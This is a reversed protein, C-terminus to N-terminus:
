QVMVKRTETNNGFVLRLLYNGPPCDAVNIITGKQLEPAEYLQSHKVTGAANVLEVVYMGCPAHSFTVYLQDSAPNPWVTLEEKTREFEEVNVTITTQADYGDPNNELHGVNDTAISYFKYSSGVEGEFIDTTETTNIKWPVLATDNVMVYLTYSRIGSGNDSGTWDVPFRSDITEELPYVQSQPAELDLTNLYENTIIPANGDFIISAKNRIEEDTGLEKKLGVSFTVFGEGEPSSGNPPLFGLFPDEELDMTEPNLSLFEWKVIGTLTDLKGSVRTILELNPRMDIDLSFEKQRNGPPFYISDGWGFASFGFESLDFVSQDLTDTIFVDHAPATAESKNEFLITYPMMNQRPIFNAEGFGSPGIIENPDVAWVSKLDKWQSKPNEFKKWCEYMNYSHSYASMVLSIIQSALEFAKLYPIQEGCSWITATVDWALNKMNTKSPIRLGTSAPASFTERNGYIAAIVSYICNTPLQKQLADLIQTSLDITAAAFVDGFCTESLGEWFSPIGEGYLLKSSKETEGPTAEYTWVSIKFDEPSKIKVILSSSINQPLHDIMLAYIRANGAGEHTKGPTYIATNGNFFGESIFYLPVSDKIAEFRPDSFTDDLIFNANIFETELGDVDSIAFFVPVNYADVNGNNGFDLSFTAWRNLVFRDRGSFSVWPEPTKGEVVTFADPLVFEQNNILAVVDWTGVPQQYLNFTSSIVGECVLYTKEGRIEIDDKRLKITTNANLGGGTIQITATGINGASSPEVKELGAITAHGISATVTTNNNSLLSILYEGPTSYTIKPNGLESTIKNGFNWLYSGANESKNNFSVDNAVQYMEFRTVPPDFDSDKLEGLYLPIADNGNGSMDKFTDDFNLWLKLEDEEGTFTKLQNELLEEQTLARKWLRIDDVLYKSDNNRHSERSGIMLLGDGPIITGTVTRVAVLLGDFYTKFNNLGAAADYTFAIHHWLTDKINNEVWNIYEGKDTQLGCSFRRKGYYDDFLMHYGPCEYYPGDNGNVKSFINQGLGSGPLFKVWAEGTMVSDFEISPSSPVITLEFKSNRTTEFYHAKNRNGPDPQDKKHGYFIDYDYDPYHAIRAKSLWHIDGSNDIKLESGRVDAQFLPFLFATNHFSKGGDVSKRTMMAGSSFYVTKGTEDNPDIVLQPWWTTKIHHTGAVLLDEPESLTTGSDESRVLYVKSGTSLYEMYVHGNSAVLSEQGNKLNNIRGKNIDVAEKFTLGGDTSRAYFVTWKEEPNNGVFILHINNGEVALKPVYRADHPCLCKEQDGYTNTYVVSVKNTVFSTGNNNSVSAYVRGSSLGNYYYAYSHVVIMLDGDYWFDAVDHRETTVTTKSFNSGGDSSYLTNIAVTKDEHDAIRYLIAVESGAAKIFSRARIRWTGTGAFDLRVPESFSEGNNSSKALYLGDSNRNYYDFHPFCLYVENGSVALKRSVVETAYGGDKYQWIQQPTEWTEGLDTSRSYFLYGDTNGARNTWVAHITNGEIVMEPNHDEYEAPLLGQSLNTLNNTILPNSAQTSNIQFLQLLMFFAALIVLRSAKIAKM